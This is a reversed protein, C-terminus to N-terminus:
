VGPLTNWTLPEFAEYSTTAYRTLLLFPSVAELSGKDEAVLSGQALSLSYSSLVYPLTRSAGVFAALFTQTITHTDLHLFCTVHPVVKFFAM